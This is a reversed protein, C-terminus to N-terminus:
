ALFESIVRNFEALRDRSIVFRAVPAVPFVMASASAQVTAPSTSDITPPNIHGFTVYIEEPTNTGVNVGSQLLLQNVNPPITMPDIVWQAQIQFENIPIAMDPTHCFHLYHTTM